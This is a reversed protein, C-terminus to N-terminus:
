RRGPISRAGKSAVAHIFAPDKAVLSKFSNVDVAQIYYNVTQSSGQNFPTIQAPGSVLEPGREGVLGFQGRPIFGGDAFFGAFMNKLSGFFGTGGGSPQLSKPILNSVNSTINSFRSSINSALSSIRSTLGNALTSVQNAINQLSIGTIQEFQNSISQAIGSFATRTTEYISVVSQAIGTNMFDFERLVGAVMEPVVSNGVVYDYMSGFWGTVGDYAAEARSTVGEAMSNFADVTADKLRVAETYIAQLGSVFRTFGEILIEVLEAIAEFGAQMAPIAAEVIPQLATALDGLIEFFAKLAPGVLDMLVTGLLEFVPQLPKLAELISPLIELLGSLADGILSGLGSILGENERILTTIAETVEQLGPKIGEGFAISAEFLAGRLNSFSQSLTDANAAAAGGFKGGEEGLAILKSMLDESSSAIIQQGNGIDAVFQGNDQSVKIGFEKLREYEGTLGDAIAEALQTIDKGNATAINSFATIAENSTDIGRSTLITFAETLDALDQPLANALEKLRNMEATAAEQSGLYTQLVTNLREYETYQSIASSALDVAGMAALAAGAAAAIGRINGLSRGLGDSARTANGLGSIGNQVDVELVYRDRITAM